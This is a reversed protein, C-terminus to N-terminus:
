EASKLSEVMDITRMKRHAMINVITAFLATLVAAWVYSMPMLERGFMMLDIEVSLVLYNHLIKGLACGFAIGLATLVVNERTVYSSVEGDFFGLVKITALERKRETININSLIYLVVIALAAACLIVIVVVFDVREMSSLYTDKTDSTPSAASVGHLALLETMIRDCTEASTDSLNLLLSNMEVEEGYVKEYYAPTMYIYHAVYNECIAAVTVEQRGDGSIVFSDGVSLNLLESLKQDIVVGEDNLVIPAPEDYGRLVIFDGIEDSQMVQLFSISSYDESEATVNAAHMETYTEVVGCQRLYEELEDRESELLGSALTLQVDHLFLEGFQRQMTMLLSDRLGFGAIILATCGGIGVITMWFRKQYRLLNRTTIKWNFSMRKWLPTIYELLVRKGPKPARPRMLNAPTAMLTALCAFLTAGVTCGVAALTASISIDPYFRLQLDPMEYMIQYAIYIMSPFLLHGIALGLVSGLLSPLLGYGLYKKSIAWRNYGLAKMLGIQTRHDEVMRTMTTLCVLAAVLFFIIPFVTALNAMRDADQGFGTYGPNYARPLIFWEGNEIDAVKRRADALEEEADAIKEEAEAKGDIYENYGKRYEREGDTLEAYAEPLKEMGEDYDAWGDALEQKGDYYEQWGDDLEKRGDALEKEADDLQAKADALKEYNVYYEEWGADLEVKAAYLQQGDVSALQAQKNLLDAKTATAEAIGAEAAAKQQRLMPLQAAAQQYEESEPPLFQMAQECQSILPDLQAIGANAEAIGADCQAIGAEIQAKAGDVAAVAEALTFNASLGFQERSQDLQKQGDALKYYGEDLQAEGDEYEKLGELYQALGDEYEAEGDILEREADRIQQQADMLEPYADELEKKGDNYEQWGDDLEKRADRLEREADRLEEEAEAKADALEVEADAIKETAETIIEDYRLKSRVEGFPELADIVDEMADDYEEYFATMEMAGEVLLYATTYVEMDFADEPLYVYAIVTGSGISASGREVCIYYPSRVVGVITFEEHRLSDEYDEGPLIPLSDGVTLGLEGVLNRDVVCERSNQPLRGELVTLENIGETISYVKSVLDGSWADIVYAGTAYAIEERAQLADIDEETIGLTSLIQVDLLKQQDLYDDGTGKMDPATAKLGSLFAVSLMALVMISLFRNRSNKIERIFDKRIASVM